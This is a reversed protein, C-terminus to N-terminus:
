VGSLTNPQAIWREPVGYKELTETVADVRAEAERQTVPDPSTLAASAASVTINQLGRYTIEEAAARLATEAENTPVTWGEAFYVPFVVRESDNVGYGVSRPAQPDIASVFIVRTEIGPEFSANVADPRPMPLPSAATATQAMLAAGMATSFGLATVIMLRNM